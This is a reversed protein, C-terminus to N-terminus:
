ITNSLCYVKTKEYANMEAVRQQLLMRLGENVMQNISTTRAYVPSFSRENQYYIFV